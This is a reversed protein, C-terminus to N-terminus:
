VQIAEIHVSFFILCFCYDLASPRFQMKIFYFTDIKSNTERCLLVM